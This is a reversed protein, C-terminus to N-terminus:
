KYANIEKLDEIRYEKPLKYGNIFITPTHTIGEKECWAKM